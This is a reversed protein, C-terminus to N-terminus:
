KIEMKSLFFIGIAVCCLIVLDTTPNAIFDVFNWGNLYLAVIGFVAGFTLFAIGGIIKAKKWKKEEKQTKNLRKDM